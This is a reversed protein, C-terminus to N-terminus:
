LWGARAFSFTDGTGVVVHDLLKTDVLALAENLARTLRRDEASPQVAGSPHNHAIVLAAANLTLARRVIERPYVAMRTLSGRASEELEILGHRADLYLTVFVEHSRTGIMLRLYDEVARPSDIQVRERAQEALARRVIETVAILLASRAAGIGPHTAFVDPKADLMDRLSDGFRALLARASAFVDRGGGGTGLLLAILEADTLAAPGRELLRERPLDPRWNRPRRKRPPRAADIRRAPAAPADATDRCETATAAPCSSLM